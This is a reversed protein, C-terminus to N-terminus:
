RISLGAPIKMGGSIEFSLEHGAHQTVVLEGGGTTVPARQHNALQTMFM